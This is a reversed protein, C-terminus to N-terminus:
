DIYIVIESEKGPNICHVERDLIAPNEKILEISLWDSKKTEARDWIYVKEHNGHYMKLIDRLVLKKPNPNWFSYGDLKELETM